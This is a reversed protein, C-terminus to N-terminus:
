HNTCRFKGDRGVLADHEPLYVGCLDCSVMKGRYSLESKRKEIGRLVRRVVRMAFWLVVVLIILRIIIM